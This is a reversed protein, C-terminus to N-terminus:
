VVPKSQSRSKKDDEWKKSIQAIKEECTILWGIAFYRPAEERLSTLAGRVNELFALDVEATYSYPDCTPCGECEKTEETM